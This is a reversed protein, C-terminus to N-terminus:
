YLFYQTAPNVVNVPNLMCINIRPQIIYWSVSDGSITAITGAVMIIGINNSDSKPPRASRRSRLIIVKAASPVSRALKKANNAMDAAPM